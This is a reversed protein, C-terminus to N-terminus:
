SVVDAIRSDVNDDRVAGQNLVDALRIELFANDILVEVMNQESRRHKKCLAKLESNIEPTFRWGKQITKTGKMKVEM